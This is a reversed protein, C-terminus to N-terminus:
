KCQFNLCEIRCRSCIASECLNKNGNNVFKRQLIYLSCAFYVRLLCLSEGM